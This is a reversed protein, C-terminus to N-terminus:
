GWGDSIWLQFIRESSGAPKLTTCVEDLFMQLVLHVQEVVGSIELFCKIPYRFIGESLPQSSEGYFLPGYFDDLGETVM